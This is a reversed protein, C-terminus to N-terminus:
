VTIRPSRLRLTRLFSRTHLYCDAKGRYFERLELNLNESSRWSQPPILHLSRQLALAGWGKGADCLTLDEDDAGGTPLLVGGGVALPPPYDDREGGPHALSFLRLDNWLQDGNNTPSLGILGRALASQRSSDVVEEGLEGWLDGGSRDANGPARHALPPAGAGAHVAGDSDGVPELEGRLVREVVDEEMLRDVELPAVM